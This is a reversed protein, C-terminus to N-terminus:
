IQEWSNSFATGMEMATKEFPCRGAMTMGNCNVSWGLKAPKATEQHQGPSDSMHGRCHNEIGEYDNSEGANDNDDEGDDCGHDTDRASHRDSV